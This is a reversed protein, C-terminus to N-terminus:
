FLKWSEVVIDEGDIGCYGGCAVKNSHLRDVWSINLLGRAVLGPGAADFRPWISSGNGTIGHPEKANAYKPTGMTKPTLNVTRM